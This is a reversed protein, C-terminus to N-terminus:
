VTQILVVGDDAAAAKVVTWDTEIAGNITAGADGFKISGDAFVAFVKKGRAVAATTAVYVDGRRIVTATEGEPIDLSAEKRYDPISFDQIRQVIGLPVLAVTSDKQIVRDEETGQWVFKGVAVAGEAIGNFPVYTMPNQSGLQGPVAIASMFDVAKQLM